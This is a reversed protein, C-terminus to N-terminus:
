PVGHPTGDYEGLRVGCRTFLNDACPLAQEKGLQGSAGVSLPAPAGPGQSQVVTRPVPGSHALRRSLQPNQCWSGMVPCPRGKLGKHLCPSVPLTRLPPGQVAM